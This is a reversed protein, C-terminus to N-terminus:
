QRQKVDQQPWLLVNLEQLKKNAQEYLKIVSEFYELDKPDTLKMGFDKFCRVMQYTKDWFELARKLDSYGNELLPFQKKAFFINFNRNKSFFFQFLKFKFRPYSIHPFQLNAATIEREQLHHLFQPNQLLELSFQSKRTLHMLCVQFLSVSRTIQNVSFLSNLYNSDTTAFFLFCVQSFPLAYSLAYLEAPNIVLVKSLFLSTLVSDLMRRNTEFVGRVLSVFMALDYSVEGNWITM